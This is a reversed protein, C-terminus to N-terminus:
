SGFPADIAWVVDAVRVTIGRDLIPRRDFEQASFDPPMFRHLSAGRLTVWVHDASPEATEFVIVLGTRLGLAYTFDDDVAKQLPWPWGPIDPHPAVEIATTDDSM